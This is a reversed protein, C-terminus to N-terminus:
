DPCFGKFCGKPALYPPNMMLALADLQKNLITSSINNLILAVRLPSIGRGTSPSEIISAHIFPNTIYPNDDYRILINRGAISILKNKLVEGNPLELDGWYELVEIKKSKSNNNTSYKKDAVVGKLIELKEINLMNNTKNSKIEDYTQYTRYIKACSDWNEVSNRDFGYLLNNLEKMPKNKGSYEWHQIGFSNGGVESSISSSTSVKGTKGNVVLYKGDPNLLEPKRSKGRKSPTSNAQTEEQANKKKEEIRKMEANHAENDGKTEEDAHKQKKSDPSGYSAAGSEIAHILDSDLSKIFSEKLNSFRVGLMGGRHSFENMLRIADRYTDLNGKDLGYIHSEFSKGGVDIKDSFSAKLAKEESSLSDKTYRNFKSADIILYKEDKNLSGPKYPVGGGLSRLKGVMSGFSNVEDVFKELNNLSLIPNKALYAVAATDFRNGYFGHSEYEDKGKIYEDASKYYSFLGKFVSNSWASKGENQLESSLKGLIKDKIIGGVLSFDGLNSFDLKVDPVKTGSYSAFQKVADEYGTIKYGGSETKSHQLKITIPPLSKEIDKVENEIIKKADPALKPTIVPTSKLEVESPVQAVRRPVVAHIMGSEIQKKLDKDNHVSLFRLDSVADILLERIKPSAKGVKGAMSILTDTVNKLVNGNKAVDKVDLDIKVQKHHSEVERLEKALDKLDEHAEHIDPRVKIVYELKKTDAM